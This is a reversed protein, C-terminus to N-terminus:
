VPQNGLSAEVQNERDTLNDGMFNDAHRIVVLVNQYPGAAALADVAAMIQARNVAHFSDHTAGFVRHAIYEIVGRIPEEPVKGDNVHECHDPASRIVPKRHPPKEDAVVSLTEM